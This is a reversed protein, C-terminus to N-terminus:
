RMRVVLLLALLAVPVGILVGTPIGGKQEKIAAKIVEDLIQNHDLTVQFANAGLPEAYEVQKPGLHALSGKWNSPNYWVRTDRGEFAERIPSPDALMVAPFDHNAAVANAIGAAGGSWGILAGPTLSIGESDAYSHIDRVVDFWPTNSAPAIAILIKEEGIGPLVKESMRSLVFDQVGYGVGPYIVILDLKRAPSLRVFQTM